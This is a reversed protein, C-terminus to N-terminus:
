TKVSPYDGLASHPRNHNDANFRNVVSKAGGRVVSAHLTSKLMTTTRGYRALSTPLALPRSEVTKRVWSGGVGKKQPESQLL